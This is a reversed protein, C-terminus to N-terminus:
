GVYLAQYAPLSHLSVLDSDEKSWETLRPNVALAERVQTIADDARGHKAYFCGLNYAAIGYEEGRGFLGSVVAVSELQIREVAALDGHEEYMQAVHEVPHLYCSSVVGSVFSGGNMWPFREPHTLDDESTRAIVTANEDLARMAMAWSDNWTNGQYKQFAEDNSEPEEPPNGTSIAELRRVRFIQWVALHAFHDKPAWVEVTGVAARASDDFFSALTQELTRAHDIIGLLAAQKTQSNPTNTNTTNNTDM